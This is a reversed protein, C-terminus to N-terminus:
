RNRILDENTVWERITSNHINYKKELETYNAGAKREAILKLKLSKPYNSNIRRKYIKREKLTDYISPGSRGVQKSIEKIPLGKLYLDIMKDKEAETIPTQVPIDRDKRLTSLDANVDAAMWKYKNFLYRVSEMTDTM